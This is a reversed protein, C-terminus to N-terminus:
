TRTELAAAVILFVVTPLLLMQLVPVLGLELGPVLPMSPAYVWRHLVRVGIWEVSAGVVLGAILVFPMRWRQARVFWDSRGFTICGAAYILGVLVGDGLSAIFCHWFAGPTGTVGVYLSKQSFEWVDNLIVAVFFIALVRRASPWRAALAGWRGPASIVSPSAPAPVALSEISKLLTEEICRLTM